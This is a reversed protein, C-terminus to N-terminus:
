RAPGGPRLLSARHARQEGTADPRPELRWTAQPTAGLVLDLREVGTLGELLPLLAEVYLDTNHDSGEVDASANFGAIDPLGDAEPLRDAGLPQGRRLYLVLPAVEGRIM